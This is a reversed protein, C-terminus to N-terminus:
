TRAPPMLLACWCNRPPAGSFRALLSSKAIRQLDVAVDYREARLRKAVARLGGVGGGRPWVHVRDISPHGEVLPQALPHVVWGIETEPAFRKVATAFCTANVVDGIAGLRVVLVKRPLTM